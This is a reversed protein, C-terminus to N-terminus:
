DKMMITLEDLQEQTVNGNIFEMYANGAISKKRDSIATLRKEMSQTKNAFSSKVKKVKENYDKKLDDLQKENKKIEVKLKSNIESSETKLDAVEKKIEELKLM